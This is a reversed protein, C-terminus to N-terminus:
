YSRPATRASVTTKIYRTAINPILNGDINTSDAVSDLKQLIDLTVENESNILPVVELQLAVKKYQISSQTGFNQVPTNGPQTTPVFSSLSSVPVPIGAPPSSPRKNNSTFVMPRSIVKFKGTSDLARVIAALGFGTNLFVSTGGVQPVIGAALNSLTTLATADQIPVTTGRQV